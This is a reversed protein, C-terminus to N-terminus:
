LLSDAGRQRAPLARSQFHRTGSINLVRRTLNTSQELHISLYDIFIRGDRHIENSREYIGDCCEPRDCFRLDVPAFPRRFVGKTISVRISPAQVTGDLATCGIRIYPVESLLFDAEDSSLLPPQYKTWDVGCLLRWAPSEMKSAGAMTLVIGSLTGDAQCPAEERCHSPTM